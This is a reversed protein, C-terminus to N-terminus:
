VELLRKCRDVIFCFTWAQDLVIRVTKAAFNMVVEGAYEDGAARYLNKQVAKLESFAFTMLIVRRSPHLFRLSTRCIAVLVPINASNFESDGYEHQFFRVSYTEPISKLYGHFCTAGYLPWSSITAIVGRRAEPITYDPAAAVADTVHKIWDKKRIGLGRPMLDIAEEKTFSPGTHFIVSLKVALQVLEHYQAETLVSDETSIWYGTLFQEVIQDFVVKIYEPSRKDLDPQTWWCVRRFHLSSSEDTEDFPCADFYYEDLPIPILGCNAIGDLPTTPMQFLTFELREKTTTIRMQDAIMCSVEGVLSMPSVNVSTVCRAPLNIKHKRTMEGRLYSEIEVDSPLNQRRGYKRVKEINAAVTAALTQESISQLTVSKAHEQLQARLEPSCTLFMSCIAYLKWVTNLSDPNESDNKNSQKVLQCFVEDELSPYRRALKLIKQVHAVPTKTTPRDQCIELISEFVRSAADVIETDSHKLLSGYKLPQNQWSLQKGFHKREKFYQKAYPVLCEVADTHSSLYSVVSMSDSLYEDYTKERKRASLTYSKRQSNESKIRHEAVFIDVLRKMDTAYHCYMEYSRGSTDVITLHNSDQSDRIGKVNILLKQGATQRTPMNVPRQLYKVDCRALEALPVESIVELARENKKQRVFRVANQGVVAWHCVRSKKPGDMLEISYFRGFYFPCKRAADIVMRKTVSPLLLLQNVSSNLTIEGITERLSRVDAPRLRATVNELVDGVIQCFVLDLVRKPALKELPTILEKRVRLSWRSHKYSLYRMEHPPYGNVSGMPATGLGVPPGVAGQDTDAFGLDLEGDALGPVPTVSPLQAKSPKKFSRTRRSASRVARPRPPDFRKAAMKRVAQLWATENSASNVHNRRMNTTEQVGHISSALTGGVRRSWTGDAVYDDEPMSTGWKIVNRSSSSSRGHRQHQRDLTPYRMQMNRKSVRLSKYAESDRRTGEFPPGLDLPEPDMATILFNQDHGLGALLPWDQPLETSSLMDLVFCHGGPEIVSQNKYLSVTWGRGLRAMRAKLSIAQNALEDARSFCLTHINATTGDPYTLFLAMNTGTYNVRWELLSPPYLRVTAPATVIRDECFRLSRRPAHIRIHKVVAAMLSKPLRGCTLVGAIHMWLRRHSRRMQDQPTNHSIINKSRKMQLGSRGTTRWKTSRQRVLDTRAQSFMADEDESDTAYDVESTIPWNITQNLLQFLIEKFMMSNSLAMQYLYSGMIFEDHLSLTNQYILRTILKSAEIAMEGEIQTPRAFVLPRVLPAMRQGLQFTDLHASTSSGSNAILLQITPVSFSDGKYTTWCGPLDSTLRRQVMFTKTVEMEPNRLLERAEGNNRIRDMIFALDAPCMLQGMETLTLQDYEVEDENEKWLLDESMTQLPVPLRVGMLINRNNKRALYGRFVAQILTAANNRARDLQGLARRRWARQIIRAAQVHRRRRVFELSDALEQRLFIKQRGMEYEVGLKVNGSQGIVLHLNNMLQQTREHPDKIRTVARYTNKELLSTYNNVFMTYPLRVPFGSSRIKVTELIGIYRLQEMVMTDEFTLAKKEPNPKICRVFWPRKTKMTEMLSQLSSHFSDLLTPSRGKAGPQNSRKIESMRRFMFSIGEIGSNCLMSLAEPRMRDRNKEVLGDVSYPITGAFHVILFESNSSIKPIGYHPNNKHAQHCKHIFSSDKGQGLYAEDNLIHIIGDPRATLLNIIDRNDPFKIYAWSVGEQNYEAQELEFVYRNFFLQLNENAYNICLQELSNNPLNEFGYIDLLSITRLGLNVDTNDANRPALRLNLENVLQDFYESYLSKAVSDRNVRAQVKNVPSRVTEKQTETVKTTLILKLVVPDIALESAIIELLEPNKIFSAEDTEGFDINGLHLIGSMIRLCLDMDDGTFRLNSWCNLLVHLGDPDSRSEVRSAKGYQLYAYDAVSTLRHAAKTERDLSSLLQYFVHYNREGVAQQVVRSKELLYNTVRAGVITPGLFFVEVYKGFRSSNDNRLTTANGFSELLPTSELVGQAASGWTIQDGESSSALYRLIRKFAETKGAGSEGSIIVVQDSGDHLLNQYM